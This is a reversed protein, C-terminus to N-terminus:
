CVTILYQNQCEAKMGNLSTLLISNTTTHTYSPPRIHTQTKTSTHKPPYAYTNSHICTHTNNPTHSSCVCPVYMCVPLCAAQPLLCPSLVHLSIHVPLSVYNIPLYVCDSPSISYVSMCYLPLCLSILYLSCVCM